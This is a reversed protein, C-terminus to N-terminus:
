KEYPWLPYVYMVGYLRILGRFLGTWKTNSGAGLIYIYIYIYISFSSTVIVIMAHTCSKDKLTQHRALGSM